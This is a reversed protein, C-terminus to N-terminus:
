QRKISELIEKGDESFKVARYFADHYFTYWAKKQLGYEMWKEKQFISNMPYDDFALVWLVNSHAHTPMLDAMHILIEDGQEMVIISHGDSHGGTHIMKIGPFVELQEHFTKVQNEITEWNEKWYTNRSRINPHRMENWEIDSTIITANPFVSVLNGDQIKTLGTAHDFHMHTLLVMDIDSTTLGLKLLDEELRSELEVGYNRLQKETFRGKGIGAEILINKEGTQVLIPDTPLEIQNKENHPYKKSWLPKPVVGFMAGGDLFTTGGTLWTLQFNGFHLSQM